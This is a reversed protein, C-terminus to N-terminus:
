TSQPAEISDLNDVNGSDNEGNKRAMGFKIPACNGLVVEPVTDYDGILDCTDIVVFNKEEEGGKQKIMKKDDLTSTGDGRKRKEGGRPIKLVMEFCHKSRPVGPIHQMRRYYNKVERRNEFGFRGYFKIADHNDTQVHLFVDQLSKDGKAALICSKLLESGVSRCQYESKVGITSICLRNRAADKKEAVVECCIAGILENKIFALKSFAINRPKMIEKYFKPPYKIPFIAANLHKLSELNITDLPLLDFKIADTTDGM